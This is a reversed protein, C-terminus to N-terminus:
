SALPRTRRTVLESVPARAVSAARSRVGKFPLNAVFERAARPLDRTAASAM